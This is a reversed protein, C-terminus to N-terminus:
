QGIKQVLQAKRHETQHKTNVAMSDFGQVAQDYLDMYNLLITKRDIKNAQLIRIEQPKM